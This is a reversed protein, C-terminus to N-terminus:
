AKTQVVDLRKRYRQYDKKITDFPFITEDMDFQDYVCDVAEVFTRLEYKIFVDIMTRIQAKFHEEVFRNFEQTNTKSLVYGHRLFVDETILITCEANYGNFTIEKERRTYNKDILQFLYKGIVGDKRIYTPNGFCNELYHKTYDKCPLNFTLMYFSNPNFQCIFHAKTSINFIYGLIAIFVPM